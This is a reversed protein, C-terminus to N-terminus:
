ESSAGTLGPTGEFGGAQGATIRNACRVADHPRSCRRLLTGGGCGFAPSRDPGRGLGCDPGGRPGRDPGRDLRLRGKGRAFGANRAAARAVPVVAWGGARGGLWRACGGLWGCLRGAVPVASLWRACGGPWRCPVWGGPAVARGGARRERAVLVASLRLVATHSPRVGDGRRKPAIGASRGLRTAIAGALLADVGTNLM